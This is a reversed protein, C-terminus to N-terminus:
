VSPAPPPEAKPEIIAPVPEPPLEAVAPASAAEAAAPEVPVSIDVAAASTGLDTPAVEVTPAASVVEPIIVPKAPKPPPTPRPLPKKAMEMRGNSFEIVHGQHILWHLDTIVARQEPTPEPVAPAAPKAAPAAEGEPAPAGATEPVPAPAPAAPAPTAGAPADPALAHLLAKRSCGPKAAIFDVIKRVGESVVTTELDLYHPRSVCVHTVTKNVKFFHLGHSAFQQSLQTAVNIPFRRQQEVTVRLARSLESSLLRRPGAAPIVFMEVERILNPLHTTRFHAEVQDRSTLKLPEPVNLCTYENKFSQEEVWQKVLAEDKVIKVRSKFVEFPMGPCREQHIKRLKEQYEHLNPPGLLTGTVGCQAVFTYTGKPPDTPVRETQYFTAFHNKLAHTAIEDESLWLSEDLSCVFLRQLPTKDAGRRVRFEHNFREAKGLILSAIEFLPYSRGTLKIQRALSEVGKPDPVISVDVPILPKVEEPRPERQFDRRPGRDRSDRQGRFPRREGQGGGGPGSAPGGTGPPRDRREPRSGRDRRFGGERDGWPRRGKGGRASDDSEGEFRSYKNEQAPQRAWAPLLQLDLDLEFESPNSM